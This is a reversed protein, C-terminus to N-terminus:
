VWLPIYRLSGNVHIPMWQTVAGNPLGPKNNAVFTATTGGAAATNLLQLEAENPQFGGGGTDLAIGGAKAIVTLAAGSGGPQNPTISVTGTVGNISLQSKGSTTLLSIYPDVDMLRRNFKDFMQVRYVKTPDLFIPPFTGVSNAIVVNTPFPTLLDGDQYAVTSITSGSLYFVYYALPLLQVRSTLPSLPQNIPNAYLVGHTM